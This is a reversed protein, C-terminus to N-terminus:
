NAEFNSSFFILLNFFSLSYINQSVHITTGFDNSNVIVSLQDQDMNNVTIKLVISFFFL